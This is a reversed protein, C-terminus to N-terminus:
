WPWIQKIQAAIKEAAVARRVSAEWSIEKTDSSEIECNGQHRLFLGRSRQFQEASFLKVRGRQPGPGTGRRHPRQEMADTLRTHLIFLHCM